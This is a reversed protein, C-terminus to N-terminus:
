IKYPIARQPSWKLLLVPHSHFPRIIYRQMRPLQNGQSVASTSIFATLVIIVLIIFIKCQWSSWSTTISLTVFCPHAINTDCKLLVWYICVLPYLLIFKSNKSECRIQIHICWFTSVLCMKFHIHPFSNIIKSKYQRQTEGVFHKYITLYKCYVKILCVVLVTLNTEVQKM